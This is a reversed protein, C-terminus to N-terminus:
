EKFDEENWTDQPLGFLYKILDVIDCWREMVVVDEFYKIVREVEAPSKIPLICKDILMYLERRFSEGQPPLNATDWRFIEEKLKKGNIVGDIIM